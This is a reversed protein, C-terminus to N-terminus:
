SEPHLNWRTAFLDQVAMQFKAKEFPQLDSHLLQKSQLLIMMLQCDQCERDVEV